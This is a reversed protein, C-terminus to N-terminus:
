AKKILNKQAKNNCMLQVSRVQVETVVALAVSNQITARMM